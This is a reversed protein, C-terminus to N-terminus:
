IKRLFSDQSNSQPTQIQITTMSDLEQFHFDKSVITKVESRLGLIERIGREIRNCYHELPLISFPEEVQVGIEEIGLLFFATIATAPATFWHLESWLSFPLFTLWVMLFRSTHRTYSQPIPAMLIRRTRALSEELHILNKNMEASHEEAQITKESNILSCIVQLATAAKDDSALIVKSEKPSILDSIQLELDVDERMEAMVCHVFVCTWLGIKEQLIKSTMWTCSERVLGRSCSAFKEWAMHAQEWRSYSTNTRFVLLLALAFSTLNFPDADINFSLRLYPPIIGQESMAFYVSVLVAIGTLYAIPPLLAKVIRSRTISNIHRAYRKSSRHSAWRSHTFVRKCVRSRMYEKVHDVECDVTEYIKPMVTQDYERCVIQLKRRGIGAGQKNLKNKLQNLYRNKFSLKLEQQYASSYQKPFRIRITNNNMKSVCSSFSLLNSNSPPPVAPDCSFSPWQIQFFSWFSGISKQFKKFCIWKKARTVLPSKKCNQDVNMFIKAPFM